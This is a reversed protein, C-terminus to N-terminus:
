RPQSRVVEGSIALGENGIGRHAAGFLGSTSTIRLSALDPKGFRVSNDLALSGSSGAPSVANAWSAFAIAPTEGYIMNSYFAQM